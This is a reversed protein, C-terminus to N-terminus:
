RLVEMGLIEAARNWLSKNGRMLIPMELLVEHRFAVWFDPDHVKISEANHIIDALRVTQVGDPASQMQNRKIEKRKVRNGAEKPPDTLDLVMQTIEFGFMGVLLEREVHTDELVDHLWATAVMATTHEVSSVIAAVAKPHIIYPLDEYKRRQGIGCHAGYAFVKAREVMADGKPLDTRYRDPHESLDMEM